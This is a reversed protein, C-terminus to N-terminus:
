RYPANSQINKDHWSHTEYKIWETYNGSHWLVGQEFCARFRFNLHSCSSGFGFGSLEYVFVWGNRWVPWIISSHQSYKDICQMQSYTIIIDRELKLTFRRVITERFTLSSRAQLLHWIQLKLSLLLIWVWM